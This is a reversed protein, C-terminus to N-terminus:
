THHNMYSYEFLSLICLGTRATLKCVCDATKQWTEPHGRLLDYIRLWTCSIIHRQGGGAARPLVRSGFDMGHSGLAGVAALHPTGQM